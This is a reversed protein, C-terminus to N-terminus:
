IHLGDDKRHGIGDLSSHREVRRKAKGDGEFLKKALRPFDEPEVMIERCGHTLVVMGRGESGVVKWFWMRLGDVEIM